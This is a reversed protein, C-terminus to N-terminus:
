KDFHMQGNRYWLRYRESDQVDFVAGKIDGSFPATTYHLSATYSGGSLFIEGNYFSQNRVWSLLFLGDEREHIYPIFAGSSKGRGRCHQFVVAYGNETYAANNLLFGNLLEEESKDMDGKVYPSRMIVAPFKGEKEPTLIITFFRENDFSLYEYRVFAM